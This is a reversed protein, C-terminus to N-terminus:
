AVADPPFCCAVETGGSPSAQITLDGGIQSARYGMARMGVGRKLKGGSPLGVGDDSISLEIHPNQAALRITIQSAKGHKIANTTAEQAIRYLQTATQNDRFGIPTDCEFTCDVGHLERIRGCM